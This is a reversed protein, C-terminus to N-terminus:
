CSSVVPFGATEGGFIYLIADQFANCYGHSLCCKCLVLFGAFNVWLTQDHIVMNGAVIAIHHTFRCVSIHGIM